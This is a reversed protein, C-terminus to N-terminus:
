AAGRARVITTGQDRLEAIVQHDDADGTTLGTEHHVGTVGLLFLGARVQGAAEAAAAGCTVASHKLRGGILLVEAARHDVLAAAAAV